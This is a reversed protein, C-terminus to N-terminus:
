YRYLGVRDGELGLENVPVAHCVKVKNCNSCGASADELAASVRWKGAEGERLSSRGKASVGHSGVVEPM